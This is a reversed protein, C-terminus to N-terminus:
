SNATRNLKGFQNTLVSLWLTYSSEAGRLKGKNQIGRIRLQILIKRTVFNKFEKLLKLLQYCKAFFRDVKNPAIKKYPRRKLKIPTSEKRKTHSMHKEIPM